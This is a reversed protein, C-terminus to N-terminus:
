TGLFVHGVTTPLVGILGIAYHSVKIDTAGFFLNLPTFPVVPCMRLMILLTLGKEEIARNLAKFLPYKEQMKKAEDFFVFRGLFMTLMAGLSIGVWSCFTGVIM